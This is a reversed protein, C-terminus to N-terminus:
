LPPCREIFSVMLGRGASEQRRGPSAIISVRLGHNPMLRWPPYREGPIAVLNEGTPM